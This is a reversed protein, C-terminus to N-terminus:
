RSILPSATRWDWRTFRALKLAKNPSVSKSLNSALLPAVHQVCFGAGFSRAVKAVEALVALVGLRSCLQGSVRKCSAFAVAEAHSPRCGARAEGERLGRPSSPIFFLNLAALGVEM